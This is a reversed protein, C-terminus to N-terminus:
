TSRGKPKRNLNRVLDEPREKMKRAQQKAQGAQRMDAASVPVGAIRSAADAARKFPDGDERRMNPRAANFRRAQGRQNYLSEPWESEPLAERLQNRAATITANSCQLRSQIIPGPLNALLAARVKERLNSYLPLTAMARDFSDNPDLNAAVDGVTREHPPPKPAPPPPLDTRWLVRGLEDYAPESIRNGSADSFFGLGHEVSIAALENWAAVGEQSDDLFDPGILEGYANRDIM